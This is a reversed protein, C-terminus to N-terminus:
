QLFETAVILVVDRLQLLHGAEEFTLVLGPCGPEPDSGLPTTLPSLYLLIAPAKPM